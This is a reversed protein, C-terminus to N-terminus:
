GILSGSTNGGDRTGSGRVRAGSWRGPAPFATPNAMACRSKAELLARGLISNRPNAPNSIMQHRQEDNSIKTVIKSAFYAAVFDQFSRPWKSLDGGYAADNSVYRVYITDLESYWYGTEDIYRTLPARFFEDSCVASTLIWDSPKDFARNYGFGPSIGPDYDIQVARMAFEWQAHELCGDVGQANWVQDLLRRGEVEETLSALVREGCLTLADNYISLRSASV